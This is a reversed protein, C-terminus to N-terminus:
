DWPNKHYANFTNVYQTLLGPDCFFWRDRSRTVGECHRAAFFFGDKSYLEIRQSRMTYVVCSLRSGDPLEASVATAPPVLDKTLQQTAPSGLAIEGRDLARITADFASVSSGFSNQYLGHMLWGSVLGGCVLAVIFFTRFLLPRVSM